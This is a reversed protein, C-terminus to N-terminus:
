LDTIPILVYDVPIRSEGAESLALWQNLEQQLVNSQAYETLTESWQKVSTTKPPLDISEGRSLSKYITELDALLIWWSVGDVALHHILILLRDPRDPGLDFLAVRILPGGALNLSAHMETVAAEVAPGQDAPAVASLDVRTVPVATTAGTIFQQWGSEAQAFRLRLADHHLLLQHLGKELLSLDLDGLVDLLVAQNWHDPNLLNQEFFWHQIPTLDIAGTVLGQEAHATSVTTAVATLEAITPHQFLQKPTLHLGAQNAKAVIQINLISDGGLEFFNDYVGIQELRLVEGWVGALLKEVPTDPAVYSEKLEPTTEEPHPLAEADVKGNPTLPMRDLRVFYSPIMYNPLKQLLYTRLAATTLHKPSVYYAALRKEIRDKVEGAVVVVCERIDRHALLAAEVEGLEIRAGRIKVQYDTRGLFEMKGASKWRGLDGTRYMSEGPRFPNPVFREATLDPRNLYGRAIGDGSIYMEGIVGIPVSNLYADLLYIQANDAPTGIPVSAALDEEADFRHIMCGVSAETPGYENYTEINGNFLDTITKALDAKLDEGGVILKRLKSESLDMEKLLSLHSPTLKIIDVANDEIVRLIPLDRVSNDERYIVVKSGSVLPVYISTVTLDFSLSTFLPFDLRENQLYVKRAWWVYNVLGSHEIMVGKPQGTSGSTYIVYALREPRARGIPNDAHEKAIIPWNTDLCVVKANHEPLRAVLRKQTLLLPVQADNLMFAIREAPYAADLPVYSGGAKLIGLLGVVMELSREVCIGVLMESKVGHRKLYHALQNARSNLERYTLQQEEFVVAVADPTRDMQAEFLQVITQDAPYPATTQNFEVLVRRREEASLLNIRSILQTRDALFGDLIHLFHEIARCQQEENFVDCNFDFHLLFSGSEDFDQVQLILSDNGDWHGSHVWQSQTPLGHFDPFSVNHYNLLVNYARNYVPNSTGPQANRLFAHTEGIVKKLLSLFSEDEAIEVHLPYTEIFLGITDKFVASPRNHALTGIALHRNSSIRYLYTFLLISFINFLSLDLTISHVGKEMAIAKLTQSRERGLDCAVRKTRTTKELLVEGYFRTPELPGAAQQRWYAAAKKYVPSLRYTREYNVYDQFSPLAPVNTLQGELALGYFESMHRYVLSVSWGDTILHHQNLYWIFRGAAVKILAADFLREELNFQLVCRQDLWSQFAAQPEPMESFNLFDMRYPFHQLVRQQPIGDVEDIVTCLADSRDILAQFAQQFYLPEIEGELTFTLIMNYLPVEPNLQQGMWIQFQSKTLNSRESIDVAHDPSPQRPNENQRHQNKKM